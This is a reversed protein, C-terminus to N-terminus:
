GRALPLRSPEPRVPAVAGSTTPRLLIPSLVSTRWVDSRRSQWSIAAVNAPAIAAPTAAAITDLFAVAQREFGDATAAFVHDECTEGELVRLRGPGTEDPKTELVARSGFLRVNWSQHLAPRVYSATLSIPVDGPFDFLAVCSEERVHRPSTHVLRSAMPGAGRPEGLLWRLPNLFCYTMHTLLM